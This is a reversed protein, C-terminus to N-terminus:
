AMVNAYMAGNAATQLAPWLSRLVLAENTLRVV